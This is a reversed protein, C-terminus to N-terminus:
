KSLDFIKFSLGDALQIDMFILHPMANNQFWRVASKVSDAKGVLEMDSDIEQVLAILRDAALKEDEVVFFNM